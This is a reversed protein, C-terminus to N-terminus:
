EFLADPVDLGADKLKKADAKICTAGDTRFGLGATGAKKMSRGFDVVEGGATSLEPGISLALGVIGETGALELGGHDGMRLNYAQFNGDWLGDTGEVRDGICTHKDTWESHEWPYPPVYLRVAFGINEMDFNAGGDGTAVFWLWDGLNDIMRTSTPEADYGMRPTWELFWPQGKEDIVANIDYIGPPAHERRFRVALADMGLRDAVASEETFWVVNFACGTSPGLDDNLLPKHEITWEYPGVFARGNWWRATSLDSAGAVNAQLLCPTRDPVGKARLQDLYQELAEGNECKHTADSGIFKDSKFYVPEDLRAAARRCSSLSSFLEYPPLQAGVSEAVEFGFARDNELRDMFEGGGVVNLGRERATEAKGGIGSSDFLVVNEDSEDAWELLADFSTERPVIGEGIHSQNDDREKGTGKDIYVKVDHGEDQLRAWMSLGCGFASAVAVRM